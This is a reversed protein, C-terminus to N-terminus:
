KQDVEHLFAEVTDVRSLQRRFYECYHEIREEDEESLEPAAEMVVDEGSLSLVIRRLGPPIEDDSLPETDLQDLQDSRMPSICTWGTMEVDEGEFSRELLETLDLTAILLKPIKATVRIETGCEPCVFVVDVSEVGNFVISSVDELGVEVEGDNPCILSFRM